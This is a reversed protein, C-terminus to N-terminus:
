YLLHLYITLNRQDYRFASSDIIIEIDSEFDSTETYSESTLKESINSVDSSRRECDNIQEGGEVQIPKFPTNEELFVNKVENDTQETQSSM